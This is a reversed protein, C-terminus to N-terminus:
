AQEGSEYYKTEITQWELHAASTKSGDTLSALVGPVAVLQQREVKFTGYNPVWGNWAIKITYPGVVKVDEYAEGEHGRRYMGALPQSYEVYTGAHTVVFRYITTSDLKM